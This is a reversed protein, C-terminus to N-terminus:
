GRDARGIPPKALNSHIDREVDRWELADWGEARHEMNFWKFFVIAIGTWLIAGGGLKMLLGAILQDTLPSIPKWIRPVHEYFSYLVTHGFTLFSAPVTPLVSQLFLYLMRGPYSLTPLEPLVGIVPSWMILSAAFLVVHAAFHWPHHFLTYEVVVPWHSLIIVTNFILLAILPRTLRTAAWRLPRPSLVIRALWAPTGLLLLPPAVLTILMHQVMHLSYLYHEALDHIPWESALWLALVGGTFFAVQRRSAPREDRGAHRPGVRALAWRYSGLIVLVLLWADWHPEWAPLRM